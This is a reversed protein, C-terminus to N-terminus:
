PVPGFRSRYESSNMFGNVMTRNDGPHTTLYDLWDDFGAQEPTRQLYGYYQMAVFTKTFELNFVQDSDAIARLVQARTLTGGTLGSILQARTLTVKNVDDNPTAPNPTTVSPLGYRNMLTNVYDTPSMANLSAFEPRLVFNNTFTGKKDFTETPTQGTVARMDKVIETYLPLRNFAVRYFRFVFNGKIRFEPSGFFSESVTLRDCVPNNNVDSCNNLINTWPEGPEPERSLFDLYHQRVFFPTTFIPNPGNVTENDTITITATAPSGLSAGGTPNSLVVGFTESGEAWADNIIPIQFTRSSQGPGFTVTDISTSFDCRAFANGAFNACNVTFTDTDTTTYDVTATGSIDGSRTVTVTLSTGAEGISYTPQSFQITPTTGASGTLTLSYNGTAGADFETVEIIYTGAIGLPLMGTGGPIRSSISSVGGSDDDNIVVVGNPGILSVFTDVSGGGDVSIAIQQGAAATFSYRDARYGVGRIPSECDSVALSGNITQGFAIPTVSCDPATGSQSIEFLMGGSFDTPSPGLLLFARRAATNPNALVNFALNQSGAGGTIQPQLWSATNPSNMFMYSGCNTGSATVNLTGSGGASGFHQGPSVTASLTCGSPMVTVTYSGTMQGTFSTAEIVYKGTLPLAITNNVGSPIQSDNNGNPSGDDDQSVPFGDPGILILYPDLSPNFPHTMSIAVRQGAVGNFSYHDAFFNAGRQTSPCDTNALTGNATLTGDISVENCNNSPPPSGATLCSGYANAHGVIQSRSFVCFSSNTAQGLGAEMISNDCSREFDPPVTNDENSVNTHAASFNHGIEHATLIATRADVIGSTPFRQSLGYASTPTRCVVAVSAIGIISGDLDKGTWLHALQRNYEPHMPDSPNFNTNWYNRFQALLGSNTGPITTTYPDTAPDPWFNQFGIQFTVGIEVQYIGDVLFMIQNIQNIAQTSGGVAAVYEGDADTAIRVVKMPSLTTIPSNFEAEIEGKHRERTLEERAAVEEALTVGCSADTEAVDEASYFVFEDARANRSLSRAAQLYFQEGETIIAGEIGKSTVAMRAQARPDGKVSGKFTNVATKPLKRAIGDAGIEQATYDPARLDYPVFQMDFDRRSTKLALRGRNRVQSAALDPDIRILDYNRFHRSLEPDDRRSQVLQGRAPIVDQTDVPSDASQPVAVAALHKTSDKEALTPFSLFSLFSLILGAVVLCAILKIQNKM